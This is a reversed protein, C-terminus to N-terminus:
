SELKKLDDDIEIAMLQKNIKEVHVKGAILFVKLKKKSAIKKASSMIYRNSSTLSASFFIKRDDKNNRKDRMVKLKTEFDKFHVTLITKDRKSGNKENLQFYKKTVREIDIEAIKIKLSEITELALKKLDQCEDIVKKKFEM